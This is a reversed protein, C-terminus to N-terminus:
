DVRAVVFSHDKQIVAVWGKAALGATLELKGVGAEMSQEIRVQVM